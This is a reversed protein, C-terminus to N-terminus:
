GARGPRSGSSSIRLIRAGSSNCMMRPIVLLTKVLSPCVGLYPLVDVCPELLLGEVRFAVSKVSAVKVAVIAPLDELLYIRKNFLGPIISPDPDLGVQTRQLGEAFDNAGTESEDEVWVVLSVNVLEFVDPLRENIGIRAEGEEVLNMDKDAMDRLKNCSASGGQSWVRCLSALREVAAPHPTPIPVFIERAVILPLLKEHGENVKVM